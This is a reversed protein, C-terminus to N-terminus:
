LPTTGQIRTLSRGGIWIDADIKSVEIRGARGIATGQRVVYSALALGAGILWPALRAKLTAALPVEPASEESMFARVRVPNVIEARM